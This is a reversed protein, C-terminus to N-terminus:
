STTPRFIDKLRPDNRLILALNGLTDKVKGQKDVNLDSQWDDNPEDTPVDNFDEEAQEMREQALQRRTAEDNAAYERMMAISKQDSDIVTGDDTKSGPAFLHGRM